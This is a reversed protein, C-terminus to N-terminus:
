LKMLRSADPGGGCGIFYRKLVLVFTNQSRELAVM